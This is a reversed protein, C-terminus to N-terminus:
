KNAGERLCREVARALEIWETQLESLRQRGRTQAQKHEIALSAAQNRWRTRM